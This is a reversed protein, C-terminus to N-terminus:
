REDQWGYAPEEEKTLNQFSMTPLDYLVEVRGSPGNHNKAVIIDLIGKRNSDKKYYDERYLLLVKRADEELSGSDRLDSLMPIPPNRREVERSLQSVLVVPINLKKAVLCLGKSIESIEDHTSRGKHTVKIYGRHDIFIIQVGHNKVYNEAKTLINAVSTGGTDDIWIGAAQVADVGGMVSELAKRNGLLAAGYSAKSESFLIRGAIQEKTMELSFFLVPKNQRIALHRVIELVLSTKGMSPRAAIISMEGPMFCGLMKDLDLLGTSSGPEIGKINNEMGEIVRPLITKIHEPTGASIYNDNIETITNDIIESAQLEYNSFADSMAKNAIEILKRREYRDKLIAIEALYNCGGEQGRIAENIPEVWHPFREKLIKPSTCSEAVMYEFVKKFCSNYFFDSILLHSYKLFIDRYLLFSGFISKEIPESRPPLREENVM